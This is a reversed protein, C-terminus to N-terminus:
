KYLEIAKLIKSKIKTIKEEYDDYKKKTEPKDFKNGKYELQLQRERM